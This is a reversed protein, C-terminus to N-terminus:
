SRFPYQASKTLAACILLFLLNVQLIFSSYVSYRGLLVFLIFGMIILIDGLRNVLLTIFGSKIANFNQYYIILFFSSVGLGDWGV